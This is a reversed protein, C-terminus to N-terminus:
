PLDGGYYLSALVGGGGAGMALGIGLGLGINSLILGLGVGIVMGLILGGVLALVAKRQQAKSPRSWNRKSM